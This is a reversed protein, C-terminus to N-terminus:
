FPIACADEITQINRKVLLAVLILLAMVLWTYVVPRIMEVIHNVHALEEPTTPTGLFLKVLWDLFLFPHIM